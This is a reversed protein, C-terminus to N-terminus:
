VGHGLVQLAPAHLEHSRDDDVGVQLRDTDDVGM